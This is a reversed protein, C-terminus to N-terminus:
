LIKPEKKNPAKLYVIDWCGPLSSSYVFPGHSYDSYWKGNGVYIQIHGYEQSSLSNGSHDWYAVIDGINYNVSTIQSKVESNKINKALIIRSYGFSNILWDHTSKSKAHLGGASVQNTSWSQINSLKVEPKNYYEFYKKAIRKVYSACIGSATPPNLKKIVQDLLRKANAQNVLNNKVLSNTPYKEPTGCTGIVEGYGSPPANSGIAANIIKSAWETIPSIKDKLIEDITTKLFPYTIDTNKNKSIVITEFNTEWDSNSLKHNVGKIIFQLNDPYNQPLFRTDVNVANYIKIGSLGDLTVGLSIPVFGNTPSSYKSDKEYAKAQIYKYFETVLAVNKDIIENNLCVGNDNVTYGFPSYYGNWFETAYQTAPDDESSSANTTIQPPIYKEKWPDILGKNWKSFMTNEVGKVYGGATSGITAMTAFDNTIETKLDFSRVFNSVSGSYGYLELAYDAEENVSYSSDIINITQTEEDITPELNNVGGMAKNIATCLNDLFDFLAINGKEDLTLSELIQNHSVYINMTWAYGFAPNKWPDLQQFWSKQSVDEASKVICVRPDLSVQYPVTYMFNDWSGNNIGIIPVGEQTGNKKTDKITPIVYQNLFELLHGFRMYFGSDHIGTTEDEQNNIYNLYLVDTSSQNININITQTSQLYTVEFYMSNGVEIFYENEKLDPSYNIDTRYNFGNLNKVAWEEASQRSKFNFQTIKPNPKVTVGGSTPQIFTGKLGEIPTGAITCNIIGNQNTFDEAQELDEASNGLLKSLHLKQLFLYSSIIDKEPSPPVSADNEDETETKYLEYAEKIFTSMSLSPTVNVKLSEIVDGLSILQLEIDYSGDQSFKWSFNVVKALLGDYNGQKKRRWREINPLFGLYSSGKWTKSFFGYEPDEILTYGMNEFGGVNNFYLSNGWELFMTYGIRLYLLDIIQFQEPTYCKINVTARKISGRNLSKVDMSTIGPMPNLGFESIPTPFIAARPGVNYTGNHLDWINGTGDPFSTGRQTMKNTLGIDQGDYLDSVGNFLVFRKALTTGSYGPDFKVNPRISESKIREDTISIGSALKVWATKSNLYSLDELIRKSGATGSGHVEQRVNIQDVVYERFSEGIIKGM